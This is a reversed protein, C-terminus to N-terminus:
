VEGAEVLAALQDALQGWGMAFGKGAHDDRTAPDGHLARTTQRTGEPALTIEITVALGPATVPRFGETLCETFVLRRAPDAVLICGENPIRTGDPTVMLVHFRGGAWPEIVASETRVPHPGFWRCLLAAETWARWVREPPAAIHRSLSLDLDSVAYRYNASIAVM